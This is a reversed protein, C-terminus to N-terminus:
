NPLLEPLVLNQLIAFYESSNNVGAVVGFGFQSARNKISSNFCQALGKPLPTIGLDAEPPWAVM